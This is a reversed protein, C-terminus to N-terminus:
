NFFDLRPLGRFPVIGHITDFFVREIRARTKPELSDVYDPAYVVNEGHMVLYWSLASRQDEAPMGDLQAPLVDLVKRDGRHYVLAVLTRASEPLVCVALDPLHGVPRASVMVQDRLDNEPSTWIAAGVKPPCEFAYLRSITLHYEERAIQSRLSAFRMAMRRAGSRSAAVYAQWFSIMDPDVIVESEDIGFHTAVRKVDRSMYYSLVRSFSKIVNLKTWYERAAARMAHLAILREKHEPDWPADIELFTDTDHHNCFGTFTTAENRGIASFRSGPENPNREIMYVHGDRSLCDLGGANQVTHARVIPGSCSGDALLCSALAHDRHWRHMAADMRRRRRSDEDTWRPNPNIEALVKV